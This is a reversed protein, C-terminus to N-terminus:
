YWTLWKEELDIQVERGQRQGHACVASGAGVSWPM